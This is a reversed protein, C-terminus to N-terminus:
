CRGYKKGRGSPTRYSPPSSVKTKERYKKDVEESLSSNVTNTTSNSGISDESLDIGVKNNNVVPIAGLCRRITSVAKGVVSEKPHVGKVKVKGSKVDKKLQEYDALVNEKLVKRENEWFRETEEEIKRKGKIGELNPGEGGVWSKARKEAIVKVIVEDLSPNESNLGSDIKIDELNINAKKLLASHKNPFRSLEHLLRNVPSNKNSETVILEDDKIDEVAAKGIGEWVKSHSYDLAAGVKNGVMIDVRMVLTVEDLM